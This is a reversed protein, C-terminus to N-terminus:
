LVRVSLFPWTLRTYTLKTGKVPLPSTEMDTFVRSHSSFSLCVFTGQSTTLTLVVTSHLRYFELQRNKTRCFNFETTKNLFLM